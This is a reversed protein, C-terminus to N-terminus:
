GPHPHRSAGPPPGKVPRPEAARRFHLLGGARHSRELPHEDTAGALAVSGGM